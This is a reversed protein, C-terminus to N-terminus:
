PTAANSKASEEDRLAGLLDAVVNEPLGMHGLMAQGMQLGSELVEPVIEDAGLALLSVGHKKDRARAIIPVDAAVKRAAKM